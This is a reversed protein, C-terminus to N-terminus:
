IYYVIKFGKFHYIMIQATCGVTGVMSSAEIGVSKVVKMWYTAGTAM